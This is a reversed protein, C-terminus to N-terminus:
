ARRVMVKLRGYIEGGVLRRLVDKARAFSADRMSEAAEGASRAPPLAAPDFLEHTEVCLVPKGSLRAITEAQARDSEIFFRADLRRYVDAKFTGHARTRIREAKSPLDLMILERYRIGRSRLWAETQPRYRELRSTVLYGVARSPTYLPPANLLFAIYADGDDNQAESPDVCLVGDIDFCCEDLLPHRMMNWQFLRPEPVAELELDVGEAPTERGYVACVVFSADPFAGELRQRAGALTAGTAVSDDIILIKTTGDGALPSAGRLLTDLDTMPLDLAVSALAAAVLGSRPIGVVLQLDRPFRDVNRVIANNMDAVSRFQV